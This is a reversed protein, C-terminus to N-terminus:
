RTNVIKQFEPAARLIVFREDTTAEKALDKSAPQQKLRTNSLEVAKRLSDIAAPSKGLGAQLGALDYWAEPNDPLMRVLRLLAQELKLPQFLEAYYRAVQLMTGPDAVPSNLMQDLIAVAENTRKAAVHQAVTSFGTQIEGSRSGNKMRELEALLNDIAGNAPDLKKCTQVVLIADDVRNLRLLVNVYRYVAEPSFPCYAFAQKFAFDAEKIMRQQEVTNRSHEMRWAYVGAISSRLKSFAKQGNDDRIFKPDGKFGKFDHRLYMKEAFACIEAVPTEYTIWNGILRDSYLSWFQHDKDVMEQSMEPLPERNIKMIIGFPSLYPYMWDLPFSEEVFFEHDPNKDFIVKTLLGNINMVAVQGSVSVRGENDRKYDEGPKLQGLQARRDADLLYENFSRASDDVTPTLIEKPPYVGEKRRTEEINAGLKMFINDLFALSPHFFKQFFPPDIQASRNYHARIYNLYTGDALANQTIIYVDRRDFKPDRREKAPIFSECFIMYTPCFRGPDTGGFLVANKTMEPYVDFPPTFMDHGFWYGFLHGRQENDFWHSLISHVPMLAFLGLMVGLSFRNRFILVAILFLL